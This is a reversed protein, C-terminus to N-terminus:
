IVLCGLAAEAELEETALCLLERVYPQFSRLTTMRFRQLEVRHIIVSASYFLTRVARGAPFAEISLDLPCGSNLIEDARPGLIEFAVRADSVEVLSYCIAAARNELSSAITAANELPASIQWEDTTGLRFWKWFIRSLM